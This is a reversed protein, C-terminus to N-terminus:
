AKQIRAAIQEIKGALHDIAQAVLADDEDFPLQAAPANGQLYRAQEEIEAVDDRLDFIEDALVLSTLVLLHSSDTAAGSSSISKLRSNVYAAVEKLRAEQGEDCSLSYGRGNINLTVEPM